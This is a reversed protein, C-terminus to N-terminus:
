SLLRLKSELQQQVAVTLRFFRFIDPYGSVTAGPLQGRGQMKALQWGNSSGLRSTEAKKTPHWARCQNSM